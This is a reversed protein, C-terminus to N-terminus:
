VDVSFNPSATQKAVQIHRLFDALHSLPADCETKSSSPLLFRVLKAAVSMENGDM